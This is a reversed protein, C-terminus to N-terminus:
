FDVTDTSKAIGRILAAMVRYPFDFIFELAHYWASDEDYKKPWIVHVIIFGAIASFLVAWSFGTYFLDIVLYASICSIFIALVALFDDM